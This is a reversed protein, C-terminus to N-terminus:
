PQDTSKKAAMDTRVRKTWQDIATRRVIDRIHEPDRGIVLTNSNLATNINFDRVESRPLYSYAIRGRGAAMQIAMDQNLPMTILSSPKRIATTFARKERDLVVVPNDSTIFSTGPKAKLFGWDMQLLYPAIKLGIMVMLSLIPGRGPSVRYEEADLFNMLEAATISSRVGTEKERDDMTKQIEELTKYQEKAQRKFFEDAFLDMIAEFGPVRTFQLAIYMALIARDDDSLNEENHIKDFVVAANDDITGLAKTEIDFYMEGSNLEVAYYDRVYGVNPPKQMRYQNRIRDFISFKGTKSHVFGELYFRPIYHHRRPINELNQM